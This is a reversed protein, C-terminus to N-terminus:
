YLFPIEIPGKVLLLLGGLLLLSLLLPSLWVRHSRMLSYVGRM